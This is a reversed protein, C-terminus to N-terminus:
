DGDEPKRRAPTSVYRKLYAVLVATLPRGEAEAKAQAARWLSEQVRIVRNPTNPVRSLTGPANAPASAKNTTKSTSHM